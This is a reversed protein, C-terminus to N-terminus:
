ATSCTTEPHDERIRRRAGRLPAHGHRQPLANRYDSQARQRKGGHAPFGILHCRNYLKEGEVFDYESTHWGTPKVRWIDGRSQAPMTDLGVCAMAAGCRGLEDLPAYEKSAASDRESSRGRPLLLARKRQRGRLSRGEFPPMSALVNATANQESTEGASSVADGSQGPPQAPRASSCPSCAPSCLPSSGPPPPRACRSPCPRARPRM